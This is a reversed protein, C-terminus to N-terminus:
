LANGAESAGSIRQVEAAAAGDAPALALTLSDQPVDLGLYPKIAQMTHSDTCM